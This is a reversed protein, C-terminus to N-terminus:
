AGMRLAGGHGAPARAAMRGAAAAKPGGPRSGVVWELAGPKDDKIADLHLRRHTSEDFAGEWLQDLTGERWRRTAQRFGEGPASFVSNALPMGNPLRLYRGSACPYCVGEGDENCWLDAYAKTLSATAVLRLCPTTPPLLGVARESM